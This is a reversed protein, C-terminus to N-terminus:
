KEALYAVAATHYDCLAQMLAQLDETGKKHMNVVYNMPSYTVSLTDNVKVTFATDLDQPNIDAIEVYYQNGKHVPTVEKGSVTFTYQSIDGTVTFYYRLAIRDRFVLTAGYFEVGDASGVTKFINATAPAASTVAGVGANALDNTKYNFYNQAAAGYHLMAKVLNKTTEPYNGDLITQAYTKISYTKEETTDTGNTIKVTIAETMRAAAVKTSVIYTDNDNAVLSGIDYVKADSGVAIHVKATSAISDDVNIKFNVSIDDALTLNWSQVDTLPATSDKQGIEEGCVGCYVRTYGGVSLTPAIVEEKRTHGAPIAMSGIEEGCTACVVTISGDTTCTADITITTTEKHECKASEWTTTYTYGGSASEGVYLSLAKQTAKPYCAFLGSSNYQMPVQGVGATGSTYAASTISCTGDGNVTIYFYSGNVKASQTKLYNSTNNVAYLYGSGTNFAYSGVANGDELTFVQVGVSDEFTMVNDTKTVAAQGRNNGNQTTSMAYDYDKAAIIVESDSAIDSIDTVLMWITTGGEVESDFVSVVAHFTTDASITVKDGAAYVKPKKNANSVEAASWGVFTHNEPLTASFAPLTFDTNAQVPQTSKLKGNEKVNVTYSAAPAFVVTITCDSSAKVTFKNGNQTVAASGSTIQYGTVEYGAAPTATIVNSSVSVTGYATNNSKATITYSAGGANGSPTTMQPVTENFLKFALEPYDVFVNRTGTISQVSDNRGMEWTDVPDAEMWDLLVEKSEIVGDSGWMNKRLTAGDAAEDIGWRVYVYLLIRAVDGRVDYSGLNPDYYGDSEGFAKNGRGSNNSSTEPRLMMIDTENVKNSNSGDSSGLSNPWVHERNWTSGADWAPGVEEGSYFASIKASSTGGNQCDTYQYMDRTADYSTTYTHAGDMLEYLAVYLDSTHVSTTSSSGNMAALEEYTTEKYFEEAKPSLFTAEEERIGWNIIIDSVKSYQTTDAYQYNVTAASATLTLGSLLSVVLLLAMLASLIRKNLKYM